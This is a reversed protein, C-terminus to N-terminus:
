DGYPLLIEENVYGGKAMYAKFAEAMSPTLEIGFSDTTDFGSDEWPLDSVDPPYDYIEMDMVDFPDDYIAEEEPSISIHRPVDYIDFPNATPYFQMGQAAVVSHPEEETMLARPVSYLGVDIAAEVTMPTVGSTASAPLMRPVDYVSPHPLPRPANLVAANADM